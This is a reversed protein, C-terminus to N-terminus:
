KKELVIKQIYFEDKWKRYEGVQRINVYVTLEGLPYNKWTYCNRGVRASSEIWGQKLYYYEDEIKEKNEVLPLNLINLIKNLKNIDILVFCSEGDIETNKINIKPENKYEFIYFINKGRDDVRYNYTEPEKIKEIETKSVGKSGKCVLLLIVMSLLIIIALVFIKVRM